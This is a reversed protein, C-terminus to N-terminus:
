VNSNLLDWIAYPSSYWTRLNVSVLCSHHTCVMKSQFTLQTTGNRFDYRRSMNYSGDQFRVSCSKTYFNADRPGTSGHAITPTTRISASTMTPHSTTTAIRHTTTTASCTECQKILKCAAERINAAGCDTTRPQLNCRAQRKQACSMNDIEKGIEQMTSHWQNEVCPTSSHVYVFSIDDSRSKCALCVNALLSFVAVSISVSYGYIWFGARRVPAFRTCTREEMFGRPSRTYRSDATLMATSAIIPLQSSSIGLLYPYAPLM